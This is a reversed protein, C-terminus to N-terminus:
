ATLGEADIVAIIADVHKECTESDPAEAMVRIVPETGSQRVLIRGSGELATDAAQIAAQVAANALTTAKDVVRVNKLIQPFVPMPAVLEALSKGSAVLAEMVLLSTMMGDGTTAYKRFIIHGSQEGGLIHGNAAMNEYVYKDGVNTKEYSIGAADLAKFFGFNSMITAVVTNNDLAGQEKLHMGCLYMIQDGDVINGNGDVALCRDADGDYAFGLDLNNEKVFACLQELHTSGCDVNINLGNPQNSLVHIEAGLRTYIEPALVYASGNACDLGIKYGSLDAPAVSILFDAYKQADASADYVRGIKDRLADEVGQTDGDMYAEIKAIVDAELKEGSGNLVKIGNDQFPNHSASIMVGFAYAGTRTLYAVGPTTVVGLIYVDCGTSTMGAALANELMDGSHRTDKGIVICPRDEGAAQAALHGLYRGISYAHASTLNVNAEGRFGDTGFYKGM